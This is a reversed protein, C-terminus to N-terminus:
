VEVITDDEDDVVENISSAGTGDLDEGPEIPGEDRQLLNVLRDIIELVKEDKDVKHAERIIQYVGNDRLQQRGWRTSCLLVLAELLTHTLVPDVERKKTDPLFQLSPPLKDMDDLDFEEPGALPLLLAPLINMGPATITSPTVAVSDSESSLLARHAQLHFCCNKITSDVGGRRILDSHETFPLVKSLPYELPSSTDLPRVPVPTLFFLRGRPTTSLNAFVSALFHLKAKREPSANPDESAAQVFADLLLPFAPTDQTSPKAPLSPTPSTACRSSTPYFGGPISPDVVVAIKMDLITNCPAPHATLNSLIMSALEACLSPPHIAYSVLFALFSSDSLFPTVLASDSLNVLAKFASHAIEPQDRCLLKLDRFVEPDKAPHLGGSVGDFFITRHPANQPTQDLLTQLALARAQPNKDHLFPLVEQYQEAM